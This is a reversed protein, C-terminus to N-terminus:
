PLKGLKEQIELANDPKSELAKKYAKQAQPIKGVKVAIDAYHDWIVPHDAGMKVCQQITEWAEQYNGMQYHVWALSDRIHYDDPAKEVARTILAYARQLDTNQEALTYGVYNLAQPNDPDARLVLEMLRTADNKKGQADYAFALLYTLETHEPWLQLASLLTQEAEAPKDARMAAQAAILHFAPQTQHLALQARAFALADEPRKADAIIQLSWRLARESLPVDAPISLLIRIATEPSKKWEMEMAALYLYTEMPAGPMNKIANLLAAAEPYLKNELFIVAAELLIMPAPPMQSVVKQAKAPQKARVYAEVLRLWLPPNGADIDLAKRYAAASESHKGRTQLSLALNAWANLFAPNEKTVRRLEEEGEAIRKMGILAMGHIYRIAPSWKQAPIREVLAKAEAHRRHQLLLRALEQFAGLDEPHTKVFANLVDFADAYKKEYLYSESIILTLPLDDPFLELGDRACIRAEAPKNQALLLTAYERFVQVHPELATLIRVAEQAATTDGRSAAEAFVLYTYVVEADKSTFDGAEATHQTVGSCAVLCACCALLVLHTLMGSFAMHGDKRSSGHSVHRYSNRFMHLGITM